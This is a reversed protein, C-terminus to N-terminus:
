YQIRQDTEVRRQQKPLLNREMKRCQQQLRHGDGKSMRADIRNHGVLGYPLDGFGGIDTAGKWKCASRNTNMDPVIM